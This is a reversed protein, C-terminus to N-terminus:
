SRQLLPAVPAGAQTLREVEEHLRTEEYSTLSTRLERQLAERAAEDIAHILLLSGGMRTALLAAADAARTAGESFDTGCLVTTAANERPSIGAPNSPAVLSSEESLM